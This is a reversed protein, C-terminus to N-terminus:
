VFAKKFCDPSIVESLGIDRVAIKGDIYQSLFGSLGISDESASRYIGFNKAYVLTEGKKIFSTAILRRKHKLVTEREQPDPMHVYDIPNNRIQKVMLSFASPDLSHPSDPTNMNEIKFHKEVISAGHNHVASVSTSIDTTHCSYGVKRNPFYERLRNIGWLNVDKAPYASVCYLLTLDTSSLINNALTIDTISSAGTSLLIPKNKEKARELLPQYPLESSAIKHRKVYKDVYDLGEVSFATCMLEIGCIQAKAWLNPFWEKRLKETTSGIGYLDNFSFLQFKVADAGCNKAMAISDLCDDLNRFNSGVEAVIFTM